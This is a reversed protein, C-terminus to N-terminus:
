MGTLRHFENRRPFTLGFTSGVDLESQAEIRIHLSRAANQALYLGMGTAASDHHSTTSTFGKDFVRPLDKPDIGRGNDKVELKIHGDREYSRILIESAPPSYKVANTLLQRLIFALWKADSLVEDAELELEFGVGKQICWAQLMRIEAVLLKRLDLQEIFLDTEIFPLRKQYLQQDLLLHIRLWEYTLSARLADDDVRDIMLQMATLPTKVEHIWSMLEDKEQELLTMNRSAIQKLRTTQSSLHTEVIREFPSRAADLGSIDFQQEWEELRRYFRTERHYRIFLFGIFVLTALFSYYLISTFSLSVDVYAIFLLLVQLSMFFLIWSRRETLFARIM